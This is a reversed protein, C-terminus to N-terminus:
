KQERELKELIAASAERGKVIEDESGPAVQSWRGIERVHVFSQRRLEQQVAALRVQVMPAAAFEDSTALVELDDVLTDTARKLEAMDDVAIAAIEAYDMPRPTPALFLGLVVGLLPLAINAAMVLDGQQAKVLADAERMAWACWIMSGVLLAIFVLRRLSYEAYFRAGLELKVLPLRAKAEAMGGVAM